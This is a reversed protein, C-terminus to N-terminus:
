IDYNDGNIARFEDVHQRSLEKERWNVLPCANLFAPLIPHCGRHYLKKNTKLCIHPEKNKSQQEETVNIHPCKNCDRIIYKDEM